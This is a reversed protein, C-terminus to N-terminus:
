SLRYSFHGADDTLRVAVNRSESGSTAKCDFTGGKKVVVIEQCALKVNAKVQKGIQDAMVAEAERVYLFPANVVVNGEDDKQRAVVNGKSGDTGAVVCTFTDGKKAKVDEPCTVSAIRAGVQEAVVGRIFKEGKDADITKEGCAALAVAALLPLAPLAVRMSSRLM